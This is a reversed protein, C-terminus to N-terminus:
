GDSMKRADTAGGPTESTGVCTASTTNIRASAPLANKKQVNSRTPANRESSDRGIAM